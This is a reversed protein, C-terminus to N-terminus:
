ALPVSQGAQVYAHEFALLGLMGTVAGVMPMPVVTFAALGLVVSAWFFRAWRGRIMERLALHAHTTVHTLTTEGLVMLLHVANAGAFVWSLPVIAAPEVAVAVPILAGAGAMIAQVLLHPPLLPSQWLDRAKAQAFLFATYIATMAALPVGLIVLWWELGELSLFNALFLLALVAGYGTIIFGGRVLWSRPQPKLLVYLFRAPHELDWVLIVGTLALFAGALLPVGWSWLDGQLPLQGLAALLVPVLFVGAAISKTFTYLSVRYDWPARHPVDYSLIAAASSNGRNADAVGGGPLRAHGRKEAAAWAPVGSPVGHPVDGQESWMFLGGEPREAALPDLTAGHAGKYFLKPHTEKEPRRVTVADQHVYAALRSLPDNMDGVVIAETPCVVVCAPELGVDLRHACFNCKEASHDEPNIFIADYPCAAICAKCGICISKDFDVIGDPRQYMAATPCATVCPPNECQNCRTVQFARRATPFVGVDVYKVYTRNVGLPVENESKCATSCAHCGICRTHDIVKAWRTASAGETAATTM